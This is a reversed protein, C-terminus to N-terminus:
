SPPPRNKKEDLGSMAERRELERMVDAPLIGADVWLLLLHYLLDASEHILNERDNLVAAIIAEGAEENLKEAIKATGKALLNASYSQGISASNKRAEITGYLEGLKDTLTDTTM